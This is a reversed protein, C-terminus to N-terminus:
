EQKGSFYKEHLGVMCEINGMADNGKILFQLTECGNQAENAM